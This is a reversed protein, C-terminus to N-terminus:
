SPTSPMMSFALALLLGVTAAAFAILRQPRAKVASVPEAPSDDKEDDVKDNPCVFEWLSTTGSFAGAFLIAAKGTPSDDSSLFQISEADIEGLTRSAYALGPNLQESAPSLHFVDYLEPASPDTLKFVFAISNKECATAMYLEGGCATGVVVTEPACGDGNSRADVSAGLPCAGPRGNGGDACGDDTPDNKAIIDERLVDDAALSNFFAGDVPAYEEDVEANHAWPFARCGEMELLAGSDWVLDMRGGGGGDAKVDIKYISLGRGGIGTLQYINPRTPDSYDVTSTGLTLALGPACFPVTASNSCEVNFPASSGATPDTPDFVSAAATMGAFAIATGNFIDGADVKEAFDGYEVDDGENATVIYQVGNVM